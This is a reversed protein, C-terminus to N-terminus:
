FQIRLGAHYIRGPDAIPYVASSDELREDTINEIGANLTVRESLAYNVDLSWLSYSPRDITENGSYAVQSGVYEARLQTTLDLSPSWSLTANASHRSRDALRRDNTLDQPDLYTYNAALDFDWPLGVSGGVEVGRIRAEDVNEYTRREQGPIGCSSICTTQILDNLDNQFAMLRASWTERAYEFGAEYSTSTEPQLEPNGVITFRGGGAVARYGSSLQKLTPAKFGRGVGGKFTLNENFNYVVYARPSLHWGYEEHRDFRGGVVLSLDPTIAFEDQVFAAYHMQEAEGSLNVTADELEERRIEGGITLLHRDLVPVSIQADSVTDTLKQTRGSDSSDSSENERKLTSRYLRWRSSGWRWDGEHSLSAHQRWVEDDSHYYSPSPGRSQTNRRRKERSASYSLDIRQKSDPTWTLRAGGTLARRQDLSSQDPDHADSLEERGRFEGWVNLGLKGEILPGGAYGGIQYPEGGNSHHTLGGNLNLSGKWKDTARRTIVNVVGGLAESGYLSSMPGRVVEIREIAETPVWGLDFDSHAIADGAANIRRGDVLVLTHDTQNGRISIGRRGLGVSSINIGPSGRLADSLDQVPRRELEERSITSISAPADRLTRETSTATVVVPSLELADDDGQAQAPQTAMVTLCLAAPLVLKAPDNSGSCNM